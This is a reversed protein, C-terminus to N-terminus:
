KQDTTHLMAEKGSKMRVHSLIVTLAFVFPICFSCSAGAFSLM